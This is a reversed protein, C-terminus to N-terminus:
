PQLFKPGVKLMKPKNNPGLNSIFALSNIDPCLYISSCQGWPNCIPKVFKIIDKKKLRPALVLGYLEANILLKPCISFIIEIEAKVRLTFSMPSSKLQVNAKVGLTMIFAIEEWVPPLTSWIPGGM